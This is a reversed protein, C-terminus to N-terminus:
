VRANLHNCLTSGGYVIMMNPDPGEQLRTIETARTQQATQTEQPRISEIAQTWQAM